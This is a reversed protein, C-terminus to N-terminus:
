WGADGVARRWYLITETSIAPRPQSQENEYIDSLCEFFARAEAELGLLSLCRLIRTIRLHNHNGPSLWITARVTFNPARTVKIEGAFDVELGYFKMMRLFSVRLNQQLEPRKRFEQLSERNLIPAAANFGSPEPLPFLWQIFDHVAELQDDPWAQIEHLYRGRHDPEEGSYFGIIRTNALSSYRASSPEERNVLKSRGSQAHSACFVVSQPFEVV